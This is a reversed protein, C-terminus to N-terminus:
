PLIAPDSVNGFVYSFVLKAALDSRDWFNDTREIKEVLDQQYPTNERCLEFSVPGVEAGFCGEDLGDQDSDKETLAIGAGIGFSLGFKGSNGSGNDYGVEGSVISAGLGIKTTKSGDQHTVRGIGAHAEFAKLDVTNSSGDQKHKTDSIHLGNLSIDFGPKESFPNINGEFQLEGLSLRSESSPSHEQYDVLYLSTKGVDSAELRLIDLSSGTGDSNQEEYQFAAGCYTAEESSQLCDSFTESTMESTTFMQVFDLDLEGKEVAQLTCEPSPPHVVSATEVKDQGSVAARKSTASLQDECQEPPVETQTPTECVQSQNQTWAAPMINWVPSPNCRLDSM